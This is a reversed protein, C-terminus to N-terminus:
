RSFIKDHKKVKKHRALLRARIGDKKFISEVGAKINQAQKQREIMYNEVEELHNFIYGIVNYIDAIKLSPYQCSIEEATSGQNVAYVITDLTVRTGGIRAVNDKDIKSLNISGSCLSAM